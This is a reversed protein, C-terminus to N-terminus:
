IQVMGDNVFLEAGNMYNAEEAALLLIAKAIEDLVGARCLPIDKAPDSLLREANGTWRDGKRHCSYTGARPQHRKRSHAARRARLENAWTQAFSREAAKSASLVGFGPIGKMTWMSANLVVGAGDPMWPLAKQMCFFAAKLNTAFGAQFQIVTIYKLNVHEATGANAFLINM